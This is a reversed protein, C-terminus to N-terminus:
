AGKPAAPMPIRWEDRAPVLMTFALWKGDGSITVLPSASPGGPPIFVPPGIVPEASARPLAAGTTQPAGDHSLMPRVSFFAAASGGLDILRVTFIVKAAGPPLGLPSVPSSMHSMSLVPLTTPEATRPDLGATAVAGRILTRRGLSHQLPHLHGAHPMRQPFTGTPDLSSM